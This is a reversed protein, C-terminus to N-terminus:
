VFLGGELHTEFIGALWSVVHILPITLNALKFRPFTPTFHVLGLLLRLDACPTTTSAPAENQGQVYIYLLLIEYTTSATMRLAAKEEM